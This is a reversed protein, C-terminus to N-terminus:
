WGRTSQRLQWSDLAQRARFSNFAAEERDLTDVYSRYVPRYPRSYGGYGYGGYGGGYAPSYTPVYIPQYYNYRVMGQELMSQATATSACLIAATLIIPRM